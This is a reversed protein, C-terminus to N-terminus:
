CGSTIQYPSRQTLSPFFIRNIVQLVSSFGTWKTKGDAEHAPWPSDEHYRQEPTPQASMKTPSDSLQSHDSFLSHRSSLNIARM